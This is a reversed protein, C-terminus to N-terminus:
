IKYNGLENLPAAFQERAQKRIRRFSDVLEYFGRALKVITDFIHM